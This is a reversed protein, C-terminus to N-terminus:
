KEGNFVEMMNNMANELIRKKTEIESPCNTIDFGLIIRGRPFMFIAVDNDQLYQLDKKIKELQNLDQNIINLEVPFWDKFHEATISTLTTPVFGLEDFTISINELAQKGDMKM